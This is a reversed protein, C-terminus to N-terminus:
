EHGRRKKIFKLLDFIIHIVFGIVLVSIFITYFLRVAFVHPSVEKKAEVHIKGQTFKFDAGPHCKSCTKPLNDPHISSRKDSAPLIFHAGHCSVCNAAYPIGEELFIGHYSKLFTSYRRPPLGYKSTIARNEHCHACTKPINKYYVPSEKKKPSLIYHESHCDVCSPADKLGRKLAQFHISKGYNEGEASHCQSCKSAIILKGGPVEFSITKHKGHCDFCKLKGYHASKKFFKVVDSHCRECLEKIKPHPTNEFGRHCDYCKLVKHISFNLTDKISKPHCDLCSKFVLFLYILSM